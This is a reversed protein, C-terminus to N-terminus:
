VPPQSFIAAPASLRKGSLRYERRTKLEQLVRDAGAKFYANKEELSMDKLIEYYHETSKHIDEMSFGGSAASHEM